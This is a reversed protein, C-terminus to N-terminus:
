GGAVFKKEAIKMLDPMVAIKDNRADISPTGCDVDSLAERLQAPAFPQGTHALAVGQLCLAAGAVIASASSTGSFDPGNGGGADLTFVGEGAAFCDIRTGFNSVRSRTWDRPTGEVHEACAVMIAGSDAFASLGNRPAPPRKNLAGRFLSRPPKKWALAPQIFENMRDLDVASRHQPDIEDDPVRGNGAPEIVTIGAHTALAIVDFTEPYIEVPFYFRQREPLAHAEILMVVNNRVTTPQRRERGIVATVDREIQQAAAHMVADATNAVYAADVYSLVQMSALRPAMGIVDTGNHAACVIGLVCTGHWINFRGTSIVGAGPIMQVRAQGAKNALDKHSLKWGREIDVFRQGAGDAGEYRWLSQVGVGLPADLLHSQKVHNPDTDPADFKVPRAMPRLGPDLDQPRLYSQEIDSWSSVTKIIREAVQAVELERKYPDVVSDTAAVRYVLSLYNQFQPPAYKVGAKESRQRAVTKLLEIDALATSQFVSRAVLEGGWKDKIEARLASWEADRRKPMPSAVAHQIKQEDFFKIVITITNGSEPEADRTFM